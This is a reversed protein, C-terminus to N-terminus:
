HIDNFYDIRNIVLTKIVKILKSFVSIPYYSSLFFTQQRPKFYALAQNPM